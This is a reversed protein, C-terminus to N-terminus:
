RRGFVDWMSSERRRLPQTASTSFGRGSTPRRWTDRVNFARERRRPRSVPQTSAFENPVRGAFIDDHSYLTPGGTFDQGSTAPRGGYKGQSSWGPNRKIPQIVVERPNEREWRPNGPGEYGILGVEGPRLDEGWERDRRPSPVPLISVEDERPTPLPTDRWDPYDIKPGRWDPFKVEPEERIPIPLPTDRWSRGRAEALDKAQARRERRQEKETAMYMYDKQGPVFGPRQPLIPTADAQAQAVQLKTPGTVVVDDSGWGEAEWPRSYDVPTYGSSKDWNIDWDTPLSM